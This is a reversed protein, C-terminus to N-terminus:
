SIIAPYPHQKVAYMHTGMAIDERGKNAMTYLDSPQGLAVEPQASKVDKTRVM